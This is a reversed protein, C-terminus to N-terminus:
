ARVHPGLRSLWDNLFSFTEEPTMGESLSTFNRIDAFLVTISKATADGLKTTTVDDHGLANLFERPVFREIAANTSELTATREAVRAELEDTLAALQRKSKALRDNAAVGQACIVSVWVALCALTLAAPLLSFSLSVTHHGAARLLSAALVWHAISALMASTAGLTSALNAVFGISTAVVIPVYGGSIAVLGSFWLVDVWMSGLVGRPTRVVRPLAVATWAIHLVSWGFALSVTRGPLDGAVSGSAFIVQFLAAGFCRALLITRHLRAATRRALQTDTRHEMSAKTRAGPERAECLM